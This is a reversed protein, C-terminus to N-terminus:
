NEQLYNQFSIALFSLHSHGLSKLLLIRAILPVQHRILNISRIIYALKKLTKNLQEDFSLNRDNQIGLHSCIKHITLVENIYFFGFDSINRSFFIFETKNTNFTLKNMEM